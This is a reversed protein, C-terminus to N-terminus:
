IRASKRGASRASEARVSMTALNRSVGAVPKEVVAIVSLGHWPWWPDVRRLLPTLVDFVKLPVRSFTRRRLIRGNIWSAPVGVRNFDFLTQVQFGVAEVSQRLRDGTYRDRRDLATVLTDYLAPHRPVLVIARGGPQLVSWIRELAAAEDRVHELVNVMIVTDFQDELSDLADPWTADIRLVKLYPKGVAYNQLYHFYHPNMEAAVYLERPILESTLRGMGAGIELVRTGVYPRLTDAMWASFRRAHELSGLMESGYEDRKYLDDILAFHVMAQLALLGDKARIKKGEKLTRPSYRIPVEYIRARRKALKFPLEVEIRFDNSRLPISKLLTTSVAKYCTELDTLNLDTFWNSVFTLMRNMLTHRHMLARRYPASLYRSGFVADAGECKFPVLLAPIDEPHYELDADHILTIDGTAQDIGTRVAAGKGRNTPHRLLVIRPNEDALRELVQRTGDTSCDDVVIVELSRVLAGEIALLRRLSAEVVYRENFVPVIVTLRFGDVRPEGEDFASTAVARSPHSASVDHARGVYVVADDVQAPEHDTSRTHVRRFGAAVAVAGYIGLLTAPAAVFRAAQYYYSTHLIVTFATLLLAFRAPVEHRRRWAYLLGVVTVLPPTFVWFMGSLVAPYFWINTLAAQPGQPPCPCTWQMLQGGLRDPFNWVDGWGVMPAPAIAYALHFMEKDPAWAHYPTTLPSGFAVWQYLALAGLAPAAGLALAKWFRTPVALALAALAAIMNLRVCVLLGGLLGAAFARGRTVRVTLMCIALVLVVSFLDSLVLTASIRAFPSTGLVLSTIIAALPGALQWTALAAGIVYVVAFGKVATQVNRPYEGDAAFPALALSFGPPYMPPIPKAVDVTTVYGDGLALHRAADAYQPADPFPQTALHRMPASVVPIAALAISAVAASSVLWNALRGGRIRSTLAASLLAVVLTIWLGTSLVRITAPAMLVSSAQNGPTVVIPVRVTAAGKSDWWADQDVLTLQLEYSGPEAPPLILFDDVPVEQGPAIASPIRTQPALVDVQTGSSYWHYSAQVSGASWVDCSTNRFRVRGTQDIGSVMTKPIDVATWEVLYRSSSSSATCPPIVTVPLLTTAAGMNEFWADNNVLTLQLVYSGPERPPRIPVGEVTMAEGPAVAATVRTQATEFQGPLMRYDSFYWHYAVFVTGAQWQEVSINRFTVRATQDRGLEMVSPVTNSIWQVKYGAGTLTQALADARALVCVSFLIMCACLSRRVAM